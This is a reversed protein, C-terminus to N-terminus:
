EEVRAIIVTINDAGGNDNAVQVLERCMEHLDDHASAITLIDPEPVMDTLGDSCLIFVDGPQVDAITVEVEVDEDPLVRSVNPRWIAPM